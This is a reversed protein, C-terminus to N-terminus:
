SSKEKKIFVGLLVGLLILTIGIISVVNLVENFVFFGSLLAYIAGLYQFPAIIQTKGQMFARTMCVQAIQTFIGIFLLIVWEIGKPFTFDFLCWFGMIPLALMPFYIVINIPAETDKLKHIANYAVGSLFASLVGLFIWILSYSNFSNESPKIGVLVVGIFAFISTLWYFWHIREKFFLGAIFVTFIPSLYQLTSAVAFPLHHLTFFFITLAIMGAFGRLFLWKRNVGFLPLKKRHIIYASISFSILSRFFVLEHPPYKQVEGLFPFPNNGLTKVLFNIFFFSIGSLLIYLIGKNM